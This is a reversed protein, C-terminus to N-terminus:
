PVVQHIKLAGREYYSRTGLFWQEKGQVCTSQYGTYAPGFDKARPYTKLFVGHLAEEGAQQPPATLQCNQANPPIGAASSTGMQLVSLFAVLTSTLGRSTRVSFTANRRAAFAASP